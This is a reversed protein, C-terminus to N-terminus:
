FDSISLLVDCFNAFYQGQYQMNLFMHKLMIYLTEPLSAQLTHIAGTSVQCKHKSIPQLHFLLTWPGM